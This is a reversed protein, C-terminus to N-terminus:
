RRLKKSTPGTLTFKVTYMANGSEDPLSSITSDELISFLSQKEKWAKEMGSQDAARSSVAFFRCRGFAKRYTIKKLKKNYNVNKQNVVQLNVLIWKLDPLFEECDM